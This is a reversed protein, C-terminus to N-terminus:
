SDTNRYKKRIRDFHRQAPIKWPCVYVYGLVHEICDSPLGAQKLPERRIDQLGTFAADEKCEHEFSCNKLWTNAHPDLQSLFVSVGDHAREAHEGCGVARAVDRYFEEYAPAFEASLVETVINNDNFAGGASVIHGQVKECQNTVICLKTAQVLYKRVRKNFDPLTTAMGALAFLHTSRSSIIAGFWLALFNRKKFFPYSEITAGRTRRAYIFKSTMEIVTMMAAMRNDNANIADRVAVISGSEFAEELKVDYDRLQPLVFGGGIQGEM